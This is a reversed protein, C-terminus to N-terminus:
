KCTVPKKIAQLFFNNLILKLYSRDLLFFKQLLYFMRSNDSKPEEKVSLILLFLSM